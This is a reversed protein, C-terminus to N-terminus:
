YDRDSASAPSEVVGVGVWHSLITGAFVFSILQSAARLELPLCFQYSCTALCVFCGSTPIGADPYGFHLLDPGGLGEALNASRGGLCLFEQMRTGLNFSIQAVPGRQFSHSGGLRLFEQTQTDLIFSIQVCPIGHPLHPALAARTPLPQLLCPATAATRRVKDICFHGATDGCMRHHLM